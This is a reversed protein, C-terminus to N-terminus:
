HRFSADDAYAHRFDRHRNQTAYVCIARRRALIIDWDHMAGLALLIRFTAIVVTPAFTENFHIGPQMTFGKVVVRVKKSGDRKTKLVDGM